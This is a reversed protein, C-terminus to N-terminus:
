GQIHHTKLAFTLVSGIRARVSTRGLSNGIALVVFRVEKVDPFVQVTPEREQRLTQCHAIAFV